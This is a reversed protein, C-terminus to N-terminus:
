RASNMTQTQSPDQLSGLTRTSSPGRQEDVPVSLNWPSGGPFTESINPYTDNLHGIGSIQWQHSVTAVVDAAKAKQCASTNGKMSDFPYNSFSTLGLIRKLM